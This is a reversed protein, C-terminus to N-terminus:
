LQFEEEVPGMTICSPGDKDKDRRHQDECTDCVLHGCRKCQSGRVSYKECKCCWKGDSKRVRMKCPAQERRGISMQHEEHKDREIRLQIFKVTMDETEDDYLFNDNPQLQEKMDAGNTTLYLPIVIRAEEGHKSMPQEIDVKPELRPSKPMESGINRSSARKRPNPHLNDM